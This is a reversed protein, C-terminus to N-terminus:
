IHRSLYQDTSKLPNITLYKALLAVFGLAKV